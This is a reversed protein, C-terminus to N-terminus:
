SPGESEAATKPELEIENIMLPSEGSSGTAAKKGKPKFAFGQSEELRERESVAELINISPPINESQEQERQSAEERLLKLICDTSAEAATAQRFTYTRRPPTNDVWRLRKVPTKKLGEDEEVTENSAAQKKESKMEERESQRMERNEPPMFQLLRDIKTELRTQNTEIKKELRAM